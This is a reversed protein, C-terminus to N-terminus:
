TFGSARGWRVPVGRGWGAMSLVHGPVPDEVDVEVLEDGGDFELAV